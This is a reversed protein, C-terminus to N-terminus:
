GFLSDDYFLTYFDPRPSVLSGCKGRGLAEIELM